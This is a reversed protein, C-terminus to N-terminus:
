TGSAIPFIRDRAFSYKGIIASRAFIVGHCPYIWGCIDAYGSDAPRGLRSFYAQNANQRNGTDTEIEAIAIPANVFFFCDTAGLCPGPTDRILRPTARLDGTGRSPGIGRYAAPSSEMSSLAQRFLCPINREDDRTPMMGCGGSRITRTSLRAADSSGSTQDEKDSPAAVTMMTSRWPIGTLRGTRASPGAAKVNGAVKGTAPAAAAPPQPQPQPFQKGTNQALAAVAAPKVRSRLRGHSRGDNEASRRRAANGRSDVRFYSIVTTMQGAQGGLEESM